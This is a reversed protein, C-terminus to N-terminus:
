RMVAMKETMEIVQGGGSAILRFFYAGNAVNRNAKDRLDWPIEVIESSLDQDDRETFKRILRGSTTYIELNLRDPAKSFQFWFRTDRRAPNPYVGWKELELRIVIKFFLSDKGINGHIDWVRVALLYEAEPLSDPRVVIPVEEVNEPDLPFCIHARGLERQDLSAWVGREMVDIGSSDYAVIDLVPFPDYIILPEQVLFKVCPPITDPIPFISFLGTNMTETLLFISDIEAPLRVWRDFGENFHYLGPEGDILNPSKLWLSYDKQIEVIPPIIQVTYVSDGFFQLVSHRDVVGSDMLCAVGTREIKGDTGKIPCLNFLTVDIETYPVRNNDEDQEVVSDEEDIEILVGGQKLNWFVMATDETGGELSLVDRGLLVTDLNHVTYFSVSFSDAMEGGSNGVLQSIFVSDEPHLFPEGIPLLEPITPIAYSYLETVREIGPAAAYLKYYITGPPHPPIPSVTKYFGESTQMPIYTFPPTETEAWYLGASDIPLRYSIGARIWVSDRLTPFLPITAIDRIDIGQVTFRTSAVGEYGDGYAYIKVLAEGDGDPIEWLSSFKGDIIDVRKKLVPISDPLYYTIIAEGTIVPETKGSIMVTDSPVVSAPVPELEIELSSIPVKAIPDGLLTFQEHGGYHVRGLATLQGLSSVNERFLYSLMVRSLGIAGLFMLGGTGFHGVAGGQPALILAEGISTGGPEDFVGEYCSVTHVFPLRRQNGLRFVDHLTFFPGGTWRWAAAHGIFILMACGMNFANIVDEGAHIGHYLSIDDYDSPFFQDRLHEMAGPIDVGGSAIDACFVFRKRWEGYSPSDERAKMKEFFGSFEDRNAVPVRGLFIDPFDDDGILYLYYTDTSLALVQAVGDWVYDIFMVGSPPVLNEGHGYINRYDWSADGLLLCYLPPEEWYRVAFRLFERIAEPHPIGYNFENYIEDTSVVVTDGRWEAYATGDELLSTDTIVIYHAGMSESSLRGTIVNRIDKVSKPNGVLYVANRDMVTDQFSLNFGGETRKIDPNIIYKTGREIISINRTTFGSLDFVIDGKDQPSFRVFNDEPKLRRRASVEIWNLLLDDSSKLRLLNNEQSPIDTITTHFIYPRVGSFSVEGVPIENLYLSVSHTLTHGGHLKIRLDVTDIFDPVEIITDAPLWMWFWSDVRDASATRFRHRFNDEELHLTDYFSNQVIATERLAGDVVVLRPGPSDEVTLWYVNYNTYLNFYTEEGRIREGYFEIYDDPDFSGDDEGSIFIPVDFGLHGMKFNRPDVGDIANMVEALESYTIRYIGEEEIIIKYKYKELMPGRVESKPSRVKWYRAIEYNVLVKKLLNEFEDEKPPAKSPYPPFNIRAKSGEARVVAVRQNRFIGTRVIEGKTGDLIELGIDGEPPVGVLFQVSDEARFTFELPSSSIIEISALLFLLM